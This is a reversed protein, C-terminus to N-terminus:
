SLEKWVCNEFIPIGKDAALWILPRVHFRVVFPDNESFFIPKDDRYPGDVVELVGVWRSLRTMYCILKDGPRMRSAANQHRPRFGSVSRDSRTFTEYTEPSFLDLFYAM